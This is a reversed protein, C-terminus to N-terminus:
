AGKATPSRRTRVEWGLPSTSSTHDLVEPHPDIGKLRQKLSQKLKSPDAVKPFLRSPKAPQELHLVIRLKGQVAQRAFTQEHSNNANSQAAVLGALTDRVKIAIEDALHIMKTRRHQRYDKVEILWTSGENLYIFDVAKAGGGIHEFQNRYFSWQDYQAAQEGEFEFILSGEQFRKM